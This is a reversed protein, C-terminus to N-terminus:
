FFDVVVILFVFGVFYIWYFLLLQLSIKTLSGSLNRILRFSIVVLCIFFFGLLSINISRYILLYELRNSHIKWAFKGDNFWQVKFCNLGRRHQIVIQCIPLNLLFLIATTTPM